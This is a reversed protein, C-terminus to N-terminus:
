IGNRVQFSVKEFCKWIKIKVSFVKQIWRIQEQFMIFGYIADNRFSFLFYEGQVHNEHVLQVKLHKKLPHVEHSQGNAVRRNLSRRIHQHTAEAEEPDRRKLISVRVALNLRILLSLAAELSELQLNLRLPDQIFLLKEPLKLKQSYFSFKWFKPLLSTKLTNVVDWQSTKTSCKFNISKGAENDM